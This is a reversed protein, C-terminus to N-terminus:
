HGDPVIVDYLEILSASGSCTRPGCAGVLWCDDDEPCSVAALSSGPVSTAAPNTVVRWSTGDYTETLALGTGTPSTAEGVAWCDDEAACAVARLSSSRSFAPVPAAVANWANASEVLIVPADGGAGTLSGVALCGAATCTVGSLEAPGPALGHPSAASWIRGDFRALLAGRGGAESGVAWCGSATCSVAALAGGSQDIATTDMATWATGDFHDVLVSAAGAGASGVAVCDSPGMCAVGHLTGDQAPPAGTVSWGSGDGRAILPNTGSAGSVSGVAWCETRTACTVGSLVAPAAPGAVPTLAWQNGTYQEILPRAMPAGGATHGVAWCLSPDDCYVGAIPGGPSPAVLLTGTGHHRSQPAPSACGACTLAVGAAAAVARCTLTAGRITNM